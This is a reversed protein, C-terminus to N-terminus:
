KKKALLGIIVALILGFTIGLLNANLDAPDTVRSANISSQLSEFTFAVVNAVFVSLCLTRWWSRFDFALAGLVPFPLFMSFHVIKDVPINFITRPIHPDTEFSGFCLYAVTGVYALFLLIKLVRGNNGMPAFNCNNLRNNM